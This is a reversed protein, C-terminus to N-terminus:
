LDQRDSILHDTTAEDLIAGSSTWSSFSSFSSFAGYDNVGSKRNISNALLTIVHKNKLQLITEAGAKPDIASNLNDINDM